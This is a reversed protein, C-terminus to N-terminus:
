RTPRRRPDGPPRRPDRRAARRDARRRGAEGQRIDAQLERGRVARQRRRCSSGTAPPTTAARMVGRDSAITRAVRTVKARSAAGPGQPTHVLAVLGAGPDLGTAVAQRESGEARPPPITTAAPISVSPWAAASPASPCRRGPGFRDRPPPPLLSGHSRALQEPGGRRRARARRARALRHDREPLLHGTWRSRRSACDRAEDAERAGARDRAPSRAGGRAGPPDPPDARAAGGAPPCRLLPQPARMVCSASTRRTPTLWEHLAERGADTLEYAKRRRGDTADREGRILGAQELRKLEPYIQGYSAAWFFRTSTWSRSSRTAPRRGSPSCESSSTPPRRHEM